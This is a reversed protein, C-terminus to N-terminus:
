INKNIESFSKTQRLKCSMDTCLSTLLESMQDRLKSVERDLDENKELAKDLRDKNDDSLKIYFDLSKQMNIIVTNDVESNYRKRTFLYSAWSGTITTIFGLIAVLIEPQM